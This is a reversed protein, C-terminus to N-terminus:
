KCQVRAAFVEHHGIEWDIWAVYWEGANAGRTISFPVEATARAILSSPGQRDGTIAATFLGKNEFWAVQADGKSSVTVAVQGGTRSVQWRGTPKASAPDLRSVWVGGQEAHWAVYCSGGGCALAPIDAKSKDTNVLVMDGINRDKREGKKPPQLGKTADALPVRLHEVLRLPERDLRFAVQVAGSAVQLTPFRAHPKNPSAAVFDTARIPEGQPELTAALHRFFLDEPENKDREDTWAVYFTGDPAPSFSPWYTYTYPKAPNYEKAPSVAVVPGSFRGDAEVFRAHVGAEPGKGDAYVLLIKDGVPYIEPHQANQAEPTVDLPADTDRLDGDLTVM